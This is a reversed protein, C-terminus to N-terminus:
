GKGRDSADGHGLRATELSRLGGSQLIYKIFKREAEEFDKSEYYLLNEPTRFIQRSEQVIKKIGANTKM